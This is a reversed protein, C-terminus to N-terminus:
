AKGEYDLKANFDALRSLLDDIKELIISEFLFRKTKTHQKM